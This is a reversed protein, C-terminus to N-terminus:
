SYVIWLDGNDGEGSAPASTSAQIFTGNAGAPGQPGPVTSVPGTDGADGKPGQPGTPGPVATGIGTWFAGDWRWVIDNVTFLEGVTPTNPFNIATM